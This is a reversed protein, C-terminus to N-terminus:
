VHSVVSPAHGGFKQANKRKKSHPRDRALEEVRGVSLQQTSQFQAISAAASAQAEAGAAKADADRREKESLERAAEALQFAADTKQARLAREAEDAAERDAAAAM